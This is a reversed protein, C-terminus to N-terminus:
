ASFVSSLRCGMKHLSKTDLANAIRQLRLYFFLYTM